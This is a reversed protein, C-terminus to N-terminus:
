ARGRIEIKCTHAVPNFIRLDNCMKFVKQRADEEDEVEIKVRLLKGTRVEKVSDYGSKYMLDKKITEGEPDRARPKNEIVIEVLYM